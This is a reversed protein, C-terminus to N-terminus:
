RGPRNGFCIGHDHQGMGPAMGDRHVAPYQLLQTDAALRFAALIDGMQGVPTIGMIGDAPGLEEVFARALRADPVFHAVIGARAVSVLDHLMALHPIGILAPQAVGALHGAHPGAHRTDTEFVHIEGVGHDGVGIGGQPGQLAEVLALDAENVVGDIHDRFAITEWPGSQRNTRVDTKKGALIQYGDFLRGKVSNVVSGHTRTRDNSSFPPFGPSSLNRITLPKLGRM